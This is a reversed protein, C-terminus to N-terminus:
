GRSAGEQGRGPRDRPNKPLSGMLKATQPMGSASRVFPQFFLGVRVYLSGYTLHGLESTGTGRGMSVISIASM